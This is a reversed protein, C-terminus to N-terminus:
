FHLTLPNSESRFDIYFTGTAMANVAYLSGREPVVTINNNLSASHNPLLMPFDKIAM